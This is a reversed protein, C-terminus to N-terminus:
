LIIVEFKIMSLKRKNIINNINIEDIPKLISQERSSDEHKITEMAGDTVWISKRNLSSQFSAFRLTEGYGYRLDSVFLFLLYVIYSPQGM